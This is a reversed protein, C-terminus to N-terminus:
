LAELIIWKLRLKRVKQSMFWLLHILRNIILGDADLVGSAVRDTSQKSFDMYQWFKVAIDEYAPEGDVTPKLPELALDKKAYDYVNNFRQGHGSQYMNFDLWEEQHLSKSSSTGGRPHYTILNNGEDGKKLGAAMARWIELVENNAINRDGGLIWVIPKNKYRKGLFAGYVSANKKNFVIPGAGPNVSFIKDGWTPLM